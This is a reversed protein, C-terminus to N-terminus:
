PEDCTLLSILQGGSGVGLGGGGVCVILVASGTRGGSGTTGGFGLPTENGGGGGAGGTTCVGTFWPPLATPLPLKGAFM